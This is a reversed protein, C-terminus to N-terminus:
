QLQDLYHKIRKLFYTNKAANSSAVTTGDRRKVVLWYETKSDTPDYDPAHHDGFPTTESQILIQDRPESIYAFMTSREDSNRIGEFVEVRREDQRWSIVVTKRYQFYGYLPLVLAVFGFGFLEPSFEIGDSRAESVLSFVIAVFLLIGGIMMLPSGYIIHETQSSPQAPRASTTDAANNANDDGGDDAKWFTEEMTSFFPWM